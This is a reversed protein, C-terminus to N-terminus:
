FLQGLLGIRVNVVWALRCESAAVMVCAVTCVM